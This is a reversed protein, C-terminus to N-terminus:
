KIDFFLCSSNDVACYIYKKKKIICLTPFQGMHEVGPTTKGGIVNWLLMWEYVSLLVSSPHVDLPFFMEWSCVGQVSAWLSRCIYFSLTMVLKCLSTVKLPILVATPVTRWDGAKRFASKMSAWCALIMQTIRTMWTVWCGNLHSLDEIAKGSVWAIEVSPTAWSFCFQREARECNNLWIQISWCLGLNASGPWPTVQKWMVECVCYGGM